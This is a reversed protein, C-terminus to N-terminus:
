LKKQDEWTGVWRLWVILLILSLLGWAGLVISETILM